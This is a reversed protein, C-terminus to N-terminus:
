SKLNVKQDGAASDPGPTGLAIKNSYQHQWHQGTEAQKLLRKTNIKMGWLLSEPIGGSNM